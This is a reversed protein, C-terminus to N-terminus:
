LTQMKLIKEKKNGLYETEKEKGPRHKHTGM